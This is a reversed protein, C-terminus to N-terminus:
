ASAVGVRADLRLSAGRHPVGAAADQLARREALCARVRQPTGLDTWACPPVRLVRLAHAHVAFVQRSLDVPGAVEYWRALADGGFRLADDMAHAVGPAVQDILSRLSRGRAAFLFSNWLAGQGMLSAAQAPAPKEVFARVADLSEPGGAPVIWGYDPTAADPSMGLLVVGAEGHEVGVCAAALSTALLAEDGVFHDSPLVVVNPEPDQAMIRLLPLLVGIATGRNKPQVIVNASPLHALQPRWFPAHEAAVVVVLRQRPVLREARALTRELLSAGGRLSCFQKPTVVGRDDTTLLRLRSGEGAALVIAWRAGLTM